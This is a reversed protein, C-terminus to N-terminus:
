LNVMFEVIQEAGYYVRGDTHRYNGFNEVEIVVFAEASLLLTPDAELATRGVVLAALMEQRSAATSSAMVAYRVPLRVRSAGSFDQNHVFRIPDLVMAAPTSFESEIQAFVSWGEGLAASLVEAIRSCIESYNM